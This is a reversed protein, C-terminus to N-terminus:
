TTVLLWTISGATSPPSSGPRQQRVAVLDLGRRDDSAARRVVEGHDLEAVASRHEPRGRDATGVVDADALATTAIPDGSPSLAVTVDPMMLAVWRGTVAPPSPSVDYMLASCVSAAILGPLEPPGSTSRSPETMPTLEAIAVTPPLEFLLWDPLM